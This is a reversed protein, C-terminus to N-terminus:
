SYGALCHTVFPCGLKKIIIGHSKNNSCYFSKEEGKKLVLLFRTEEERIFSFQGIIAGLM